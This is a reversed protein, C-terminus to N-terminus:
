FRQWGLMARQVQMTFREWVSIERQQQQVAGGGRHATRRGSTDHCIMTVHLYRDCTVIIM